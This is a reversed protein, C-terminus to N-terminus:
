PVSSRDFFFLGSTEAVSSHPTLALWLITDAGEASTRLTKEFRDRFQPMSTQVGPTDAWGPHMAHFRISLAQTYKGAWLETLYVQHRKSHAYAMTGDLKKSAWPGTTTISPHVIMKQTYMGGSSVTVVRSDEEFYKASRNLLPLMLQTLLFTGFTNTALSTEIPDAGWGDIPVSNDAMMGANNILAHIMKPPVEMELNKVFDRISSSSSLDLQRLEVRENGSDSVLQQWMPRSKELNRCAMMVSAGRQALGKAVELGLGSNAGTVIYVKESNISVDLDQPRFNVSAKKFGSVGFNPVGHALWIM